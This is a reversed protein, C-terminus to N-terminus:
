SSVNLGRIEMIKARARHVRSKVTGLKISTQEAYEGYSLGNHDICTLADRWQPSLKALEEDTYNFVEIKREIKFGLRKMHYISQCNLNKAKEIVMGWALFKNEAKITFIPKSHNFFFYFLPM